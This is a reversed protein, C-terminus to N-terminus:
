NPGLINIVTPGMISIETTTETGAQIAGIYGGGIGATSLNKNQPTFDGNDPDAFLPDENISSSDNDTGVFDVISAWYGQLAPITDYETARLIALKGAGTDYICNYDLIIQYMDEPNDDNQYVYAAGDSVMINNYVNCFDPKEGADIVWRLAYNDTGYLTNNVATANASGKLYLPRNGALTNRIVTVDEAKVVMQYDGGTCKNSDVLAGDCGSGILISHSNDAGTYEVTNGTCVVKEFPHDNFYDDEGLGIGYGAQTAHNVTITNNKVIVHPAYQRVVIGAGANIVNDNFTVNGLSTIVTNEALLMYKHSTGAFDNGTIEIDGVDGLVLVGTYALDLTSDTLMLNGMDRCYIVADESNTTLLSGSVTINGTTSAADASSRICDSGNGNIVCNEIVFDGGVGGGKINNIVADLSANGNFTMNKFTLTSTNNNLRVLYSQGAVANYTVDTRVGSNSQFTIDKTASALLYKTANTSENYVGDGIKIIDNNIAIGYAAQITLKPGVGGGQDTLSSGDNADDGGNASTAVFIDAGLCAGCFVMLLALIIFKRM